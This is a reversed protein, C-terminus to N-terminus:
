QRRYQVSRNSVPKSRKPGKGNTTSVNELRLGAVIECCDHVFVLLVVFSTCIM